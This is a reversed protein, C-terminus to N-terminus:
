KNIDRVPVGAYVGANEIDKIIVSGVGVTCNGCININNKVCSGTGISTLKGIKVNGSLAANPSIHVYDDLINDHEIISGTNVIVHRGIKTSVNIIAGPMIVTGEGIDVDTSIVSTKHIATYYNVVYKKSIQERTYNNGIGIIFFLNNKQRVLSEIYNIKGLVPYGLINSNKQINDDLFGLLEDGSKIVIDAIVKAHGGGGIIVVNKYM